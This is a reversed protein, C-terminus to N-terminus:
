KTNSPKRAAAPGSGFVHAIARQYDEPTDLDMAVGPDGCPFAACYPALWELFAKLNPLSSCALEAFHCRPMILPHRPKDQFVPQCISDPNGQSFAILQELTSRLIQPQDGLVFAFHTLVEPWDAWRAACRISSFMDGEAAHNFIVREVPFSLRALECHINEDGWACAACVQEVAPLASWLELLHGLISTEGWPLLLKPKGMRRSRGAGLIIVGLRFNKSM